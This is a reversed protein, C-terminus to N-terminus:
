WWWRWVPDQIMRRDVEVVVAKIWAVVVRVQLGRAPRGAAWETGWRLGSSITNKFFANKAM